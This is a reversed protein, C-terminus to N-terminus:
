TPRSHQPHLPPRMKLLLSTVEPGSRASQIQSKDHSAYQDWLPLSPAIPTVSVPNERLFSFTHHM